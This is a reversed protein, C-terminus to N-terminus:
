GTSRPAPAPWGSALCKRLMSEPGASAPRARRSWRRCPRRRRMSGAASKPWRRRRAPSCRMSWRSRDRNGRRFRAAGSGSGRERHAHPPGAAARSAEHVIADAQQAQTPSSTSRSSSAQRRSPRPAGPRACRRRWGARATRPRRCTPCAARRHRDTGGRGRPRAGRWTRCPHAIRRQSRQHDRRAPDRGPRRAGDSRRGDPGARAHNEEIQQSLAALIDQLSRAETRMAIVSRTFQEAEKRRTRGFMLWVLGM